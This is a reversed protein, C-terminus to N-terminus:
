WRVYTEIVICELEGGRNNDVPAFRRANSPIQPPGCSFASPVGEMVKNVLLSELVHEGAERFIDFLAATEKQGDVKRGISRWVVLRRGIASFSVVKIL